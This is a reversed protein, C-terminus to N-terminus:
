GLILLSVDYFNQRLEFPLTHRLSNTQTLEMSPLNFRRNRASFSNPKITPFM